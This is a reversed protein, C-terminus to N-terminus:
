GGVERRDICRGSRWAKYEGCRGPGPARPVNWTKPKTDVVRLSSQKPPATPRDAFFTVTQLVGAAFSVVAAAIGLLRRWKWM